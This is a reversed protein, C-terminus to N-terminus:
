RRMVAAGAAGLPTGTRVAGHSHPTGVTAGVSAGASTPTAPVAVHLGGVVAERDGAALGGGAPAGASSSPTVPLGASGLRTARAAYSGGAGLPVGGGPGRSAKGGAGGVGSGTAAGGPLSKLLAAQSDITSVLELERKQMSQLRLELLTNAERAEELEGRLIGVLAENTSSSAKAEALERELRAIARMQEENAATLAAVTAKSQELAGSLRTLEASPPPGRTAAAAAGSGGTAQTPAAVGATSPGAARRGRAAAGAPGSSAGGRGGRLPPPRGAPGGGASDTGDRRSHPSADEEGEPEKGVEAEKGSRGGRVAGDAPVRAATPGGTPTPLGGSPGVAAHGDMAAGAAHELASPSRMGVHRSDAGYVATVDGGGGSGGYGGGSSPMAPGVGAGMGGGGAGERVLSSSSMPSFMAGGGPVPSMLPVSVADPPPALGWGRGGGGGGMAAGPGGAYGGPSPAAGAMAGPGSGGYGAGTPYYSGGGGGYGDRDRDASPPPMMGAAGGMGGGPTYPTAGGGHAYVSSPTGPPAGMFSGAGAGPGADLMALPRGHLIGRAQLLPLVEELPIDPPVGLVSRLVEIEGRLKKNEKRLALILADKTDIHVVPANEIKSARLAYLLTNLSEELYTSAPSVCAIMVTMANGGLADMLLKTLQRSASPTPPPPLSATADTNAPPQCAPSYRFARVKSDRYPIHPDIPGDVESVYPVSAAAGSRGAGVGASGLRERGAAVGPGGALSSAARARGGLATVVSGPAGGVGAGGGGRAPSAAPPLAPAPPRNRKDALAAIVKGLVFLSRNIQRTELASLGESKSEKLRESGALDVCMIKSRKQVSQGTGADVLTRELLLTLLSHSRSSDLNLAHSGVTRNRHGETVVAMVEDVTDCQVVLMGQAFYGLQHSFRLQLPDGTLNLLDFIQENYIECFSARLVTRTGAEAAEARIRDFLYAVCRPIIGASTDSAHMSRAIREEDGSM